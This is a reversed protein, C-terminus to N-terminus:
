ALVECVCEQSILYKDTYFPAYHTGKLIIESPSYVGSHHSGTGRERVCVCVCVCVCVSVCVCLANCAFNQM